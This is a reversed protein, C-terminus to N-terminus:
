ALELAHWELEPRALEALIALSPVSGSALASVAEEELPFSGFLADCKLCGLSLYRQQATRSWRPKITTAAPHDVLSILDKAYAVIPESAVTHVRDYPRDQGKLHILFPIENPLSCKWCSYAIGRVQVVLQREVSADLISRVAPSIDSWAM